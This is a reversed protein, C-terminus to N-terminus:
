VKDQILLCLSALCYDRGRWPCVQDVAPVGGVPVLCAQITVEELERHTLPRRGGRRPAVEGEVGEREGGIDQGRAGDPAHGAHGADAADGEGDEAAEDEDIM